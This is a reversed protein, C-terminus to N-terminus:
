ASKDILYGSHFVCGRRELCVSTQDYMINICASTNQKEYVQTSAQRLSQSMPRRLIRLQLVFCIYRLLCKPAHCPCGLFVSWVEGSHDFWQCYRLFYFFHFIACDIGTPLWIQDVWRTDYFESIHGVLTINSLTELCLFKFCLAGLTLVRTTPTFKSCNCIVQVSPWDAKHKLGQCSQLRSFFQLIKAFDSSTDWLDSCPGISPKNSSM